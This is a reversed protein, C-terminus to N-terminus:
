NIRARLGFRSAWRPKTAIPGLAGTEPAQGVLYGVLETGVYGLDTGELQGTSLLQDGTVPHLSSYLPLRGIGPRRHLYGVQRQGDADARRRALSIAGDAARRAVARARASAPLEVDRWAAPAAAWKAVDQLAPAGPSPTYEATSLRAGEESVNVPLTAPGPDRCLAGLESVSRGSPIEGIGYRHRRASEDLARLLGILGFPLTAGPPAKPRIPVSDVWGVLGLPEVQGHLPDAEGCLLTHEGTSRVRVLELPELMPFAMRDVHGLLGPSELSRDGSRDESADFTQGGGNAGAHAMLRATGALPYNWTVGLYYELAWGDPPHGSRTVLRRGTVHHVHRCLVQAEAPLWTPAWKLRQPREAVGPLRPAAKMRLRREGRAAPDDPIRPAADVEVEPPRESSARGGAHLHRWQVGGDSELEKVLEWVVNASHALPRSEEEEFQRWVVSHPDPEVQDSRRLLRYAFRGGEGADTFAIARLSGNSRFTRVIKEILAPDALLVGPAADSVMVLRGRVEELAWAATDAATSCLAPPLRRVFPGEGDDLWDDECAVLVEADVCSQRRLRDALLGRDRGPVASTLVLSLAPSWRAKLGALSSPGEETERLSDPHPGTRYAGDIGYWATDGRSWGRKRFLLSKTLAPEGRVGRAALRLALNWDEHAMRIEPSYRFGADFVERDFLSCTDCFNSELLSHLNFAPAEFYDDRKGFFQLNPYIYGVEEGANQLQGVLREIADPVLQNDTDVPLVYRGTAIDLAANRALGPGRNEPQRLVTLRDDRGLRDILEVTHRETSGDDVVIVEVDPYTQAFVSELCGPLYHGDDFCAVVVSVRPSGSSPRNRFRLPPPAAPKPAVPPVEEILEDYLREHERAMREVSLREVAARRGSEAMERYHGQDTALRMLAAAYASADDRPDVLVGEGNTVLESLGPLAPGVLPRGMSMSEFGVYPVGEFLSTLLTADTAALWDAIGHQPGHLLVHRELGERRMRERVEAELDGDGLAHIRYDLGEAKLRSAVELMLMPDKQEVLRAPFLINFPDQPVGARPAVLEPSFERQADVGTYIVRCKGSAVEYDDTIARALQRSTVSFADVLNGYRTTVYRVYGARHHEEVHLQVVTAPRRPLSCIDPLLDYGLRSDMIHVARIGRAHIFDLIFGPMDEGKVIEPLPWLEDVYPAVDALWPNDSPQTTILSPRFRDRDLWRFWDLTGKSTGGLEMWPAIYVLPIRAGGGSM